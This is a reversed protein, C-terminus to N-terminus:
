LWAGPLILGRSGTHHYGSCFEVCSSLGPPNIAHEFISVERHMPQSDEQSTVHAPVNPPAALACMFVLSRTLAEQNRPRSVRSDM